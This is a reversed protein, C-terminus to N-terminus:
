KRLSAEYELIKDTPNDGNVCEIASGADQGSDIVAKCEITLGSASDRLTAPTDEDTAPDAPETTAEVPEDTAPDPEDTADGGIGAWLVRGMIDSLEQDSLGKCADVNGPDPKGGAQNTAVADRMLQECEKADTGGGCGALLALALSAALAAGLTRRM